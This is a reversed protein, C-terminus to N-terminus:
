HNNHTHILEAIHRSVEHGSCIFTIAHFGSGLHELVGAGMFAAIAATAFLAITIYMRIM